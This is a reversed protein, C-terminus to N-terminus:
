TLSAFQNMLFIYKYIRVYSVFSKGDVSSAAPVIGWFISYTVTFISVGEKSSQSFHVPRIDSLMLHLQTSSTTHFVSLPAQRIGDRPKRAQHAESRAQGRRGSSLHDRHHIAKWKCRSLTSLKGHSVDESASLSASSVRLAFFRGTYVFGGARANICQKGRIKMLYIYWASVM